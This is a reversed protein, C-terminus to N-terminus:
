EYLAVGRNSPLFLDDKNVGPDMLWAIKGAKAPDRV